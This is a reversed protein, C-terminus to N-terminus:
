AVRSSPRSREFQITSISPKVKPLTQSKEPRRPLEKQKAMPLLLFIVEYSELANALETDLGLLGAVNRRPKLRAETLEGFRRNSCRVNAM